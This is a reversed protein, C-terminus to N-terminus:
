KYRGLGTSPDKHEVLRFVFHSPLADSNRLSLCSNLAVVKATLHQPSQGSFSKRLLQRENSLVIYSYSGNENITKCYNRSGLYILEVNGTFRDFGRGLKM